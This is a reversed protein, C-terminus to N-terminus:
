QRESYGPALEGNGDGSAVSELNEGLRRLLLYLQQLGAADLGGMVSTIQNRHRQLIRAVLERGSESLRVEKGRLDSSSSNSRVYGLRRLREILGTVSPPRILLRRGLEAPRMGVQGEEEGRHLVRLCAWQSRSIGFRSFYPQMVRDILGMVRLLALYAQTPLESQDARRTYGPM